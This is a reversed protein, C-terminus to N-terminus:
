YFSGVKAYKPNRSSNLLQYLHYKSAKHVVWREVSSAPVFRTEAEPVEKPVGRGSCIVIEAKYEKAIAALCALAHQWGVKITACDKEDVLRELIGLHIVIFDLPDGTERLFKEIETRKPLSQLNVGKSDPVYIRRRELAERMTFYGGWHGAHSEVARQVREDIVAIRSIGATLFEEALTRELGSPPSEFPGSQDDQKEYSEWFMMKRIKRVNEQEQDRGGMEICALHHRDFVVASALADNRMWEDVISNNTCGIQNQPGRYLVPNVGYKESMSQRWRTAAARWVDNARGEIVAHRIEDDLRAFQIPRESVRLSGLEMDSILYRYEMGRPAKSLDAIIDIGMRNLSTKDIRTDDTLEKSIVLAVKPKKVFFEYCLSSKEDAQCNTGREDVAHAKLLPADVSLATEVDEISIGRLYAAAIMVERIGWNGEKLSGDPNIISNSEITANIFEVLTKGDERRLRANGSSDWVRVKLFDEFKDLGTEAIRVRLGVRKKALNPPRHKASNRILNEFITYLAHCGNRGGPMAVFFNETKKDFNRTLAARADIGTIYQIILKQESFSKVTSIFGLPLSMYSGSTSIEALFDMREQLYTLLEGRDDYKALLQEIPGGYQDRDQWAIEEILGNHILEAVSADITTLDGKSISPRDQAVKPLVHSGINHSMNRSMIAVAANRLAFRHTQVKPILLRLVDIQEHLYQREIVDRETKELPLLAYDPFEFAFCLDAIARLDDDRALPMQILAKLDHKLVMIRDQEKAGQRASKKTPCGVCAGNECKAWTKDDGDGVRSWCEVRADDNARSCVAVREWDQFEPLLRMFHDLVTNKSSSDERTIVAAAVEARATARFAVPLRHSRYIIAEAIKIADDESIDKYVLAHVIGVLRGCPAENTGADYIPVSIMRFLYYGDSRDLKMLAEQLDLAWDDRFNDSPIESKKFPRDLARMEGSHQAYNGEELDGNAYHCIYHAPKLLTDTFDDTLFKSSVYKVAGKDTNKSARRILQFALGEMYLEKPTTRGMVLELLSRHFVDKESEDLSELFKEATWNESDFDAISKWSEYMEKPFGNPDLTEHWYKALEVREKEWNCLLSKLAKSCDILLDANWEWNNEHVSLWRFRRFKRDFACPVLQVDRDFLTPNSQVISEVESNVRYIAESYLHQEDRM